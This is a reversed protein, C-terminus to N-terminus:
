LPQIQMVKKREFQKLSYIKKNVMVCTNGNWRPEDWGERRAKDYLWDKPTKQDKWPTPGSRCVGAIESAVLSVPQTHAVVCATHILTCQLARRTYSHAGCRVDHTHTHM